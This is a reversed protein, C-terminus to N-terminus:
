QPNFLFYGFILLLVKMMYLVLLKAFFWYLINKKKDSGLQKPINNIDTFVIVSAIITFGPFKSILM